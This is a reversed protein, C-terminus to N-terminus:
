GGPGGGAGGGPGGPSGAGAGSGGGTGGGASGGAGSAGTSPSAPPAAVASSSRRPQAPALRAALRTFRDRTRRNRVAVALARPEGVLVALRRARTLATYLLNRELMVYHQTHLPVVVVPYESGQAKHISCAFAPVLEDLDATEYVLTRGDDMEVRLQREEADVAAVRGLDGNFVELEYNNRVQMVKDGARFVREGRVLEAAGPRPPNLRARLERNLNETGLLGRNMPTLVQLDALPDIGFGAPIREAVLHLLTELVEEPTRREFFFFDAPAAARGGAPAPPREHIPLEGRNVRHANVVILSERAQRFIETLRVVEVAGSDILDALVRGPGVSPLQDVDGVLVLRGGPPVARVVAHALSVDLMSAEDVILLDASLPREPGRQFARSQPDFELLRHVTSATKGTAEALRKAARGTPAALAVRQKKAALIEVIGRVLTTKGTGPGGTIVLVQATIGSRIADRQQPALELSEREEFWAVARGVDIKLPKGPRRAIAALAEALGSEAAHLARLFVAADPPGDGEVVAEEVVALGEAALQGLAPTLTEAGLGLLAGADELLRARPLFVHGRDSAEELVHLLGARARQPSDPPLGLSAAVKDASRFGIGYVDVALRYPDRRVVSLAGPGYTKYIRIAHHTTVGHSQLFVMVEKIERQEVWAKQIEGSRKPGIGPVEALRRPQREIVELTDHGFHAVLRAAMGKGIGPILGSGLYKEIGELTAPTVTRYSTVRFQRGFKRDEEWSGELRLTEGPQVGLLRGVATVPEGGNAPVVKVVSWASEENAYVVRELSGELTTEAAPSFLDNMPTPAEAPM